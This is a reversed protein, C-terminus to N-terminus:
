PGSRPTLCFHTEVHSQCKVLHVQNPPEIEWVEVSLRTHGCYGLTATLDSSSLYTFGKVSPGIIDVDIGLYINLQCVSAFM